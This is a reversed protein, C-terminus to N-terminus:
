RRLQTLVNSANDEAALDDQAQARLCPLAALPLLSLPPSVPCSVCFGGWGGDARGGAERGGGDSVTAARLIERKSSEQLYGGLLLEDLIYYAQPHHPHVPRPRRPHVPRPRATNPQARPLTPTAPSPRLARRGERGRVSSGQCAACAGRVKDFNFIIDLECVNGFYRDLVEVQAPLAFNPALTHPRARTLSFSTLRAISLAHASIVGCRACREATTFIHASRTRTTGPVVSRVHSRTGACECSLFPQAAAVFSVRGRVSFPAALGGGGGRVSAHSVFLHIQELALLENCENAVCVVFFLSAYSRPPPTPPPTPSPTRPTPHPPPNLRFPHPPWRKCAAAFRLVSSNAVRPPALHATRVLWVHTERQEGAVAGGGIM